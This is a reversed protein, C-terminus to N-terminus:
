KGEDEPHHLGGMHKRHQVDSMPTAEENEVGKQGDEPHHLGSMHKRHQTDSMPTAEENEVRKQGDDPHHLGSMHKRHQVDSMKHGDDGAFAMPSAGFALGLLATGLILTKNKMIEEKFSTKIVTNLFTSPQLRMPKLIERM